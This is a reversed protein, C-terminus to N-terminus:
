SLECIRCARRTGGGELADKALPPYCASPPLLLALLNHSLAGAVGQIVANISVFSYGLFWTFAIAYGPSFYWQNGYTDSRTRPYM